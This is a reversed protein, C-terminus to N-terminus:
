FFFRFRPPGGGLLLRCEVNSNLRTWGDGNAGKALLEYVLRADEMCYDLLAEWEGEQAMRIADGGSATKAGLGNNLDLMRQLKCGGDLVRQAYVLPDVCKLVWRLMRGDDIGFSRRMFELDFRLANYGALVRAEDMLEIIRRVAEARREPPEGWLRFAFRAHDDGRYLCVCTIEPLPAASSSSPENNNDKRQQQSSSLLPPLLGLTEIDFALIGGREEEEEGEEQKAEEEEEGEKKNKKNNEEQESEEEKKRKMMAM